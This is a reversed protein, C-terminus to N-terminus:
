LVLLLAAHLYFVLFFVLFFIFSFFAFASRIYFQCSHSSFVHVCVHERVTRRRSRSRSPSNDRAQRTSAHPSVTFAFTTGQTGSMLLGPGPALGSVCLFYGPVLVLTLLLPVYMCVVAPTQAYMLVITTDEFVLSTHSSTGWWWWWWHLQLQLECVQELLRTHSLFLIRVRVRVRFFNITIITHERM